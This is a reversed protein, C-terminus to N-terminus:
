TFKARKKAIESETGFQFFHPALECLWGPRITTIDRMYDKNTQIVENFVVWQPPTDTYLVSTPHIHLCHNNRITRYTGDYHLRAANAFFAAAICRQLLETNDGCSVLQVKFKKLMQKLQNRINCARNLGKLNLYNEACWQSSKNHELFANYVNVMTIHDGEHVSFKTKAREAAKKENSPSVFVNEIQMLSAITLAEETCEFDAATLLMKAFMPSLPFEAMNMGLPTTLDGDEDLASLAYLLEFSHLMNMAPPASLFNFRLVNKVGLAKLQLIVPSLESRQIEPVTAASLKNYESEPYLRFTKGHRVRGARGARQDASAQSIPVTILSEVGTEANYARLKVFGCDVVFVIGHITVSTEAINTAVVIKRTTKATRDFVKLQESAPLSGYMRLVKMKMKVDQGMRRAEQILQHVVTEVEDQGTLFALIDGPVENHHIKLITEVTAQVYNPLPDIAYHIDVPYGRGEISLITATDLKPNDTLNTNFFNKVEAADLTASAIIVRLDKRRALIKKLLGILIDTHQTREHAEDVMIVSYKTLLPDSFIERILMGDTLFIISTTEADYCQDFRVHFGIEDGLMTGREESVRKALTVAAVRRPQCVAIKYRQGTWGAELLYQPVQTSKGCGTHGVIVVVPYTEVLYLIHTRLAFVPLKQRQQQITMSLYPNYVAYQEGSEYVREEQLISRPDEDGPRWFKPKFTAM